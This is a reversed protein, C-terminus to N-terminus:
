GQALIPQTLATAMLWTPSTFKPRTVSRKAEGPCSRAPSGKHSARSPVDSSARPSALPWIVGHMLAEPEHLRLPLQDDTLYIWREGV